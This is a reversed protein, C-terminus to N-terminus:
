QLYLSRFLIVSIMMVEATRPIALTPACSAGASPSCSGCHASWPDHLQLLLYVKMNPPSFPAPTSSCLSGMNIEAAQTDPIHTSSTHVCLHYPFIHSLLHLTGAHSRTPVPSDQRLMWCRRSTKLQKIELTHMRASSHPAPPPPQKNTLKSQRM